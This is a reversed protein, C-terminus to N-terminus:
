LRPVRARVSRRTRGSPRAACASSALTGLVDGLLEGAAAFRSPNESGFNLRIFPGSPETPFWESGPAVLLGRTECERVLGHVDTGDPLRVWLNLGGVPVHEVHVQPAHTGLSDLLLDRRVRLQQRMGRLHASWGPQSVVDLAAAQLVGSVYMTEAARDALIRERAPGRAIVAAVRLAPSVSKTLSRLYIVHGDDDHGVLPRPDADIALDHAWDDEVIFAARARVVDLVAAGTDASWM